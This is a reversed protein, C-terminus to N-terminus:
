SIMYEFDQLPLHLNFGTNTDLLNIIAFLRVSGPFYTFYSPEESIDM